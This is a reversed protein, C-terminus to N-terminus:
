RDQVLTPVFSSILPSPKANCRAFTLDLSRNELGWRLFAEIM